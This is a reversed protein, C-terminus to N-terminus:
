AFLFIIGLRILCLLGVYVASTLTLVRIAQLLHVPKKEKIPEGMTARHSVRGQYTNKGGLQIQLGGAMLAEPIGSNPSPHRHADQRYANWAARPHLKLCFLALLMPLITLRAPLWNALDDLRASAWGLHLYPDNRYGVMSDLTNIARYAMALPAGGILAYFLPSTVADVINEAVTEVGGRVVGAENLKETDRGVVMSLAFRAQELDKAALADYIQKGAEALGKTAVTTSILIIELAIGAWIHWQYVMQVLFFVLVYVGGVIVLPFLMGLLRLPIPHTENQWQLKQILFRLGTELSAIGKGMWVVPHPLWRPDGILRDLLYASLLIGAVFM